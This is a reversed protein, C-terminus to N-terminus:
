RKLCDILRLVIEREENKLDTIDGTVQHWFIIRM